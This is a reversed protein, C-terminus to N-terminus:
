KCNPCTITALQYHLQMFYTAIPYMINIDKGM